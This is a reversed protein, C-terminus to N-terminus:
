GYKRQLPTKPADAARKLDVYLLYRNRESLENFRGWRSQDAPIPNAKRWNGCAYAYFDVCPDATKDIASLDFSHLAKPETPIESTKADSSPSTQAPLAGACLLLATALWASRAVRM